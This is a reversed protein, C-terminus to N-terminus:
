NWARNAETDVGLSIGMLVRDRHQGREGEVYDKRRSLEDFGADRFADYKPSSGVVQSELRTLGAHKGLEVLSRILLHVLAIDRHHPDILVELSGIHRRSVGQRQHLIGIAVASEGKLALLPLNSEHDVSLCWDMFLSINSFPEKIFLHDEPELGLMFDCLMIEDEERMPRVTCMLENKLAVRQPYEELAYEIM